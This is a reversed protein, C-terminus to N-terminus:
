FFCQAHGRYTPVEDVIEGGQLLLYSGFREALEGGKAHRFVIPDGLTVQGPDRLVLPTQVEGCMEEPLLRAGEPLWPLPVKDASPPGSAVYGGGLCTVINPAPRRTAELAFFAAPELRRMHANSFYDFLHPKLFASGATVETVGTSPTTSDLSGSGGGNVLVPPLGVERLAEVMERRRPGLELASARRILAKLPNLVPAFPNADGLGAVQAEYGMLGHFRVGPQDAVYRALTVVDGVSHLPSRRVGLHVRGGGLELSMDVCLVVAIEVNAHRGAAAIRDVGERGDAMVYIARGQATLDAALTLDSAQLPPYAVLLDDFGQDALFAAEETAFCMLGAFRGESRDLLRRLLAVVRLSKSAIRLPIGHPAITDRVREANRDFADLDVIAAPLRRGRLAKKWGAYDLGMAQDTMAHIM